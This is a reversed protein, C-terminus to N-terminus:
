RRRRVRLILLGVWGVALFGTAAGGSRPGVNCACGSHGQATFAEGSGGSGSGGLGGGSAAGAGSSGAAGASSGGSGGGASSAGGGSGGSGGDGIGGGTSGGGSGGSSTGGSSSAGPGADVVGGTGGSSSGAAGDQVSGGDAAPTGGDWGPPALLCEKYRQSWIYQAKITTGPVIDTDKQVGGKTTCIDGNEVGNGSPDAWGRSPDTIAEALEHSVSGLSIGVNDTTCQDDCGTHCGSTPGMDPIVAYNINGSRGGENHYACWSTCSNGTGDNITTGAPFFVVYVTNPRGQGDLAPPPLHGATIQAQLETAIQTSADNITTGTLMIPTITVAAGATGRGITQGTGSAQGASSYEALMDIYASNTLASLYGEAWAQISPDVASTWFVPIAQVNSVVAGGQYALNGTTGSYNVTCTLAETSTHNPAHVPKRGLATRPCLALAGLLAIAQALRRCLM